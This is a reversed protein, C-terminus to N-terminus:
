EKPQTKSQSFENAKPCTAFHTVYTMGTPIIELHRSDSKEFVIAYTQARLDIPIIKGSTSKGFALPAGCAKCDREWYPYKKKREEPTM